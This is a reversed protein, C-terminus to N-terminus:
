CTLSNIQLLSNLLILFILLLISAKGSDDKSQKGALTENYRSINSFEDSIDDDITNSALGSKYRRKFVNKKTNSAGYSVTTAGSAANATTSSGNLTEDFIEQEVSKSGISLSDVSKKEFIITENQSQNSKESLGITNMENELSNIM